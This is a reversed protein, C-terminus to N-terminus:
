SSTQEYTFSDAECVHKHSSTNRLLEKTVKVTYTGGEFTDSAVEFSGSDTTTATGRVVDNLKVKITRNPFCADKSSSVQGTFRLPSCCFTGIHTITTDFTRTHATAAPMTAQVLVTVFAFVFSARQFLRGRSATQGMDAIIGRTM